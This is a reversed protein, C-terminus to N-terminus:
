FVDKLGEGLSSLGGGVAKGVHSIPKFLSSLKSPSQGHDIKYATEQCDQARKSIKERDKDPMNPELALYAKYHLSAERLASADHKGYKQLTEALGIHADSLRPNQYAAARYNDIASARQGKRALDDALTLSQKAKDRAQSVQALGRQSRAVNDQGPFTAGKQYAATASDLDHILLSMDAVAFADSANQCNQIVTNMAQTADAFKFQAQSAQAYAIREADNTPTGVTTLNVSQGSLARLKAEALRLQLNNPNMQIAKQVLRDAAEFNNSVFFAGTAEKQAKLMLGTTMGNIAGVDSPAYSLVTTYEKLADDLKECRLLVDGLRRHLAVSDPNLALGSRLDAASLELDGRDNYIDALKLYADSNEPKIAISANYEKVAAVTNNQLRYVEGMGFHAPASNANLSLATNLEKHAEDLQGIKTLARGLAYHASSNSSRLKIAERFDAIASATNGQSLSILGRNVFAVGYMPESEISKSFNAKALDFKGQAKQILGLVLLGEPMNPESRLALECQAQAQTLLADRQKIITMSSSQLRNLTVFALGVHALSYGSDVQLARNFQQEAGDLKFQLALSFGLGCMAATDKPNTKLAQRFQDTAKAYDASLLDKEGSKDAASVNGKFIHNDSFASTVTRTSAKGKAAAALPISSLALAISVIATLQGGFAKNKLKL